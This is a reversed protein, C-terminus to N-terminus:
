LGHIDSNFTPDNQLIAIINSLDQPSGQNWPGYDPENFPQAWAITRNTMYNKTAIM